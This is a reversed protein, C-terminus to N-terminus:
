KSCTICNKNKLLKIKKFNTSLVDVTLLEGTLIEGINLIVKLVESAQITGIIGPIIGIVGTVSGSPALEDPPATPFLCRYCPGHKYNFVSVQGRFESISGHILPINLIHCADNMAYRVSFNDSADVVIDYNRIIEEANSQDLKINYTKVNLHKNINLLRKKASEVKETGLTDYGHVIQRQLNSKDVVDFDALGIVGVGAAALYMSIPSGLGGTGVILVKSQKIKEQGSIGILSLSIHRAYHEFESENLITKKKSAGRLLM